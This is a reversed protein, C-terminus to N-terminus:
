GFVAVFSNKLTEGEVLYNKGDTIDIFMGAAGKMGKFEGVSYKPVSNGLYFGNDFMKFMGILRGETNEEDGLLIYPYDRGETDETFGIRAISVYNSYDSPKSFLVFNNGDVTVYSKKDPAFFKGTGSMSFTGKDLDLKFVEGDKSQLIGATILDANFNGSNIYSANLYLQGNSLVIGKAAGKDTLLDVIGQQSLDKLAAEALSKDGITLETANMKLIGEDLDLFFTSADKSQLIGTSLYTANIYIQGDEGMFFGEVTGNNTLKNFIETQNLRKIAADVILDMKGQNVIATSSDRRPSGVSELTLKQGRQTRTMVYMKILYGDIDRIHIIDGAKIDTRCPLSIRCPSYVANSIEEEITHLYPLLDENVFTILPNVNIVYRNAKEDAEPFLLGEESGAMQVQVAEVPEVQYDEYKLGGSSYYNEGTPELVLDSDKYWAFEIKGDPTARCFRACIEGVWSLLDRGTYKSPKFKHVPFDANPITVNTLTLMCANCVLQAFTLLDYPWGDLDNLWSTMDRDLWSVRDYAVFKYTNRTTREPTELRFMGIKTRKGEDDVTYYTVETGVTISLNKAPTFLKVELMDSCVSGLTLETGRNVSSTHSISQIANTTGYGSFIETGDPLVILHREM